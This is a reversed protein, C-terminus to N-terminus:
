CTRRARRINLLRSTNSLRLIALMSCARFFHLSLRGLKNQRLTLSPSFFNYLTSTLVVLLVDPTADVVGEVHEHGHVDDALLLLLDPGLTKFRKKGRRQPHQVFLNGLFM